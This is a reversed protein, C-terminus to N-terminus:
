LTNVCGIFLPMNTKTDIIAYVFPHDLKIDLKEKRDVVSTVKDVMIATAAAAKTGDKDVEIHTKHIVSSFYYNSNKDKEFMNYLNARKPSFAYTAGMKKITESMETDYDLKYEPISIHVDRDKKINSLAKNFSGPNKSLKSIYESPKVGEPMEIGVFAYDGGKYYKKFGYAGNLKFYGDVSGNMMNVKATSGNLNTFEYNETIQYKNFPEAWSGEFAVANILCMVTSDDLDNVIKPIMKNTNKNVWSNIDKVTSNNFPAKYIESDYYSKTTSLYKKKVKIDRKDKIWISNAVNWKVKKDSEIDTMLKCLIQNTDFTKIGGYIVNELQTKTKGKAGNEALGFAFMISAPSILVNTNEDEAKISANLLKISASTLKKAETSKMNRGTKKDASITSTLNKTKKTKGAANVGFSSFLLIFVLCLSFLKKKNM